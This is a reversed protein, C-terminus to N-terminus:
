DKVITSEEPKGTNLPSCFGRSNRPILPRKRVIAAAVTPPAKRPNEGEIGKQSLHRSKNHSQTGYGYTKDGYIDLLFGPKVRLAPVPINVDVM